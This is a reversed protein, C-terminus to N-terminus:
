MRFSDKDCKLSFINKNYSASIKGTNKNIAIKVNPNVHQFAIEDRSSKKISFNYVSGEETLVQVPNGDKEQIISIKKIGFKNKKCEYNVYKFRLFIEDCGLIIFLFSVFIYKVKKIKM